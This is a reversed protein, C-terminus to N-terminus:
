LKIAWQLIETLNLSKQIETDLKSSLECRKFLLLPSIKERPLINRTKPEGELTYESMEGIRFVSKGMLLAIIDFTSEKPTLIIDYKQLGKQIEMFLNPNKDIESNWEKINTPITIRSKPNTKVTINSYPYLADILESLKKNNYDELDRTWHLATYLIEPVINKKKPLTNLNDFKPNGSILIKQPKAGARILSGRSARGLALYGDAMLPQKNYEYDFLANWGHEFCIVKKGEKKWKQLDTKLSFDNWVFIIDASEISANSKEWGWLSHHDIVHYRITQM